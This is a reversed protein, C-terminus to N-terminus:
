RDLMGQSADVCIVRHGARVLPIGIRGTGCGIELIPGPTAFAVELYRDVDWALGQAEIV